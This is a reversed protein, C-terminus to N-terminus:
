WVCLHNAVSHIEIYSVTTLWAHQTKNLGAEEMNASLVNEQLGETM